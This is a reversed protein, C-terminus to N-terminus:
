CDLYIKKYPTGKLYYTKRGKVVVIAIKFFLGEYFWTELILTILLQMCRNYNLKRQTTEADQIKYETAAVAM